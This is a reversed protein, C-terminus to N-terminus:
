TMSAVRAICPQARSHSYPYGWLIPHSSLSSSSSPVQASIQAEALDALQAPSMFQGKNAALAANMVNQFSPHPETRM